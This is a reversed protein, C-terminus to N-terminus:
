LRNSNLTRHFMSLNFKSQTTNANQQSFMEKISLHRVKNAQPHNNINFPKMPLHFCDYHSPDELGFMFYNMLQFKAIAPLHEKEIQLPCNSHKENAVSTTTKTHYECNSICVIGQGRLENRIRGMSDDYSLWNLIICHWHGLESIQAIIRNQKFCQVLNRLMSWPLCTSVSLHPFTMTIVM